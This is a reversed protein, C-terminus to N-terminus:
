YLSQPYLKDSIEFSYKISSSNYQIRKIKGKGKMTMVPEGAPTAGILKYLYLTYNDGNQTGVALYNFRKTFDEEANWYYNQIFTIKEGPTIGELPTEEEVDIGVKYTYLKDGVAYYIANATLENSAFVTAENIKRGTFEKVSEIPNTTKVLYFYKQQWTNFFAYYFDLTYLYTKSADIKDRFVAYGYNVSKETDITKNNGFMLLEHDINNPSYSTPTDEPLYRDQFPQLGVYGITVFRHNIKDFLFVGSGGNLYKEHFVAYM